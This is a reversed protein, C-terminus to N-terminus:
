FPWGVWGFSFPLCHTCVGLCWAFWVSDDHLQLTGLLPLMALLLSPLISHLMAWVWLLLLWYINGLNPCFVSLGCAVSNGPTVIFLLFVVPPLDICWWCVVVFSMPISSMRCIMYMLRRMMELWPLQYMITSHSFSPLRMRTSGIFFLVNASIYLAYSCSICCSWLQPMLILFCMSSLSADPLLFFWWRMWSDNWILEPLLLCAGIPYAGVAFLFCVWCATALLCTCGINAYANM